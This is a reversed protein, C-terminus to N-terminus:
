EHPDTTIILHESAFKDDIDNIDYGMYHAYIQKITLSAISKRQEIVMYPPDEYHNDIESINLRKIIDYLRGLDQHRYRITISTTIYKTVITASQIAMHAATKYAHILGPVGLKTGGFYRVVAILINNLEASRIENYIPRGGTGSPEGDDNIRLQQEDLGISYAYCIHRAKPHCTKLHDLASDADEQKDVPFIHGIFRSGRDKFVGETPILITKYADLMRVFTALEATM